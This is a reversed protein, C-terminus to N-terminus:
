YRVIARIMPQNVKSSTSDWIQYHWKGFDSRVWCGKEGPIDELGFKGGWFRKKVPVMKGEIEQKWRRWYYYKESNDYVWGVSVLVGEETIPIKYKSIDVTTWKGRKSGAGVITAPTIESIPSFSGNHEEMKFFRIQFPTTSNGGQAIFVSVSEFYGEEGGKPLTLIRGLELNWFPKTFAMSGFHKKLRSGIQISTPANSTIIAQPLDLGEKKLEVKYFSDLIPCIFYHEEYGLAQVKLTDVHISDPWDITFLGKENSYIGYSHDLTSVTAYPIPENECSIHGHLVNQSYSLVTIALFHFGIFVLKKFM